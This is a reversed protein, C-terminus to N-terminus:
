SVIYVNKQLIVRGTRSGHRCWQWRRTNWWAKWRQSHSATRGCTQTTRGHGSCLSTTLGHAWDTVSDEFYLHTTLSRAWATLCGGTYLSVTLGGGQTTRGSPRVSSRRQRSRRSRDGGTRHGRSQNRGVCHGQSWRCCARGRCRYSHGCWGRSRPGVREVVRM